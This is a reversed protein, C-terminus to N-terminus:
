SGAAKMVKGAKRRIVEDSYKIGKGKYPEPPRKSRILAAFEGVMQKSNGSVNITNKVIKVEIDDPIQLVIPHSYGLVLTLNKKEATARYGVGVIELKKEYGKLVGEILNNALARTTGWMARKERNNIDDISFAIKNDELKVQVLPSITMKLKGKPGSVLFRGAELKAEIGEPIIIPRKGIKSM